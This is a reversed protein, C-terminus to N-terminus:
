RRSRARQCHAASVEAPARPARPRYTSPADSSHPARQGAPAATEADARSRVELRRRRRRRELAWDFALAAAFLFTAVVADLWYHNATLVIAALTIVPHALVLYRWRSKTAIVVAWAIVLAWGFHLSPMAAFQNAFGKYPSGAGYSAPGFVRATDVFGLDPFMRPPALPMLLHVSMGTLTIVIMVNRFR